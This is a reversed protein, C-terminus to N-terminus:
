WVDLRSAGNGEPSIRIQVPVREHMDQVHSIVGVKRGQAQLGDLADMALQLSEPDLSGFGEDIFLSEIRLTGSAMSALGLALALSVLFTEGGSLSHVSRVEDGMETDIVLLGLDSGGRKLRYRRALNWLQANAHRVLLDLNYAQAIRRFTRGDQSGILDSIRAWREHEARLTDMRTQLSRLKDRTQDDALLRSQLQRLNLATKELDEALGAHRQELEAPEADTPPQGRHEQFQRDREKCTTDSRNLATRTDDVRTRLARADDDSVQLLHALRPDDLEPRAARWDAIAAELEQLRERADRQQQETLKLAHTIANFDEATKERDTRATSEAEAATRRAQELADEWAQPSAHTGLLERLKVTVGELEAKCRHLTEQASDRQQQRTSQQQRLGTLTQLHRDLQRAATQWELTISIQEALKGRQEQLGNLAQECWAARQEEDLAPLEAAEPLAALHQDMDRRKRAVTELEEVLTSLRAELAERRTEGRIRVADLREVDERARTEENQAASDLAELLTADAHYPHDLSGCVPCPTDQELGKRLEEVSAERALRQRRLVSLTTNLAQRAASLATSNSQLESIVKALATRTDALEGDLRAERDRLLRLDRLAQRLGAIANSREQLAERRSNLERLRADLDEPTWADRPQETTPGAGPRARIRDLEASKAARAQEETGINADLTTLASTHEALAREADSVANTLRQQEHSLTHARRLDPRANHLAQETNKLRLRAQEEDARLSTLRAQAQTLQRRQGDLQQERRATGETLTQQELFMHRRPLLENLWHLTDRDAALADWQQRAQEHEQEARQLAARLQELTQFWRLQRELTTRDAELAKFAGETKDAEHELAKRDEVPLPQVSGALTQLKELERSAQSAHQFAAMGLQSYLGTNTLKELLEGRDNENAKLFASFESQALLVARTFQDFSLGVKDAILTDLESSSSNLIQEGDVAILQRDIKLQGPTGRTARARRINWAARYHLGDLGRFLVQAYGEDCGRRLLHRPDQATLPKGSIDELRTGSGAERLRPTTGYLALCIADLVTSKGSGTPGTIAFLGANALPEATFDVHYEGALSALNKLSIGLIKM